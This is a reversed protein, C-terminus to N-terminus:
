MEKEMYIAGEQGSGALHPPYEKAVFGLREYLALAKKNVLVPDVCVKTAGNKFAQEIAFSLVYNAIGKGHVSPFLKIDLNSLNDHRTDIRYFSEGVYEDNLFIAFHNVLPRHRNLGDYWLKMEDESKTLGEPFGVFSMVEGDAWLRRLDELDNEKTERIELKIEEGTKSNTYAILLESVEYEITELKNEENM